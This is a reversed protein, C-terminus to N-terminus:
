VTDIEDVGGGERRREDAIRDRAVEEHEAEGKLLSKHREAKGRDLPCDLEVADGDALALLAEGPAPAGGGVWSCDLRGRPWSPPIRFRRRGPAEGLQDLAAGAIEHEI